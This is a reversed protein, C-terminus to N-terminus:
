EVDIVAWESQGSVASRIQAWWLVVLILQSKVAGVGVFRTCQFGTRERYHVGLVMRVTGRGASCEDCRVGWRSHIVDYICKSNLKDSVKNANLTWVGSKNNKEIRVLVIVFEIGCVCDQM